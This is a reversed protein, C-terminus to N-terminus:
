GLNSELTKGQWRMGREGRAGVRYGQEYTRRVAKLSSGFKYAIAGTLCVGPLERDLISHGLDGFARKGVGRPRLKTSRM